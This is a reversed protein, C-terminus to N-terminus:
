NGYTFIALDAIFHVMVAPWLSGRRVVWWGLLAGWVGALLVGVIGHPTGFWHFLGFVVAHVVIARTPSMLPKLSGLLVGRFWLEEILANALAFVVGLTWYKWLPSEGARTGFMQLPEHSGACYYMYGALGLVTLVALLLVVLLDQWKFRWRLYFDFRVAPMRLAVYYVGALLLFGLAYLLLDRLEKAEPPILAPLSWRPLGTAFGYLLPWAGFCALAFVSVMLLHAARPLGHGGEHGGTSLEMYYERLAYYVMACMLYILALGLLPHMRRWFEQLAAVVPLLAIILGYLPALRPPYIVTPM